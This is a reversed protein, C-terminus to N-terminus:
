SAISGARGKPKRRDGSMKIITGASLRSGIRDDYVATLEALTLNSALVLPTGERRDIIGKVAEYHHDTVRERAGLEDLVFCNARDVSEWLEKTSCLYGSSHQLRGCMADAVRQCWEPVTHYKGSGYADLICLAACTKGSGAGGIFTIPWPRKGDIVAKITNRAHPIIEDRSRSIKPQWIEPM